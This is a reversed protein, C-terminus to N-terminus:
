RRFLASVLRDGEAAAEAAIENAADHEDLPRGRRGFRANGDADCLRVAGDATVTLRSAVLPALLLVANEDVAVRRLAAIAASLRRDGDTVNLYTSIPHPPDPM